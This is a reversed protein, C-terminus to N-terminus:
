WRKCAKAGCSNWLSPRFRTIDPLGAEWPASGGDINRLVGLCRPTAEGLLTRTASSQYFFRYQEAWNETGTEFRFPQCYPSICGREREAPPLKSCSGADGCTQACEPVSTAQIGVLPHNVVHYMVLHGLEHLLVPSFLEHEAGAEHFTHGDESVHYSWYSGHNGRAWHNEDKFLHEHLWITHGDRADDPRQRDFPAVGHETPRNDIVIRRVLQTHQWPVRALTNKLARFWGDHIVGAVHVPVADTNERGSPWAVLVCHSREAGELNRTLRLWRGEYGDVSYYRKRGGPETLAEREGDREPPCLDVTHEAAHEPSTVITPPSAVVSASPAPQPASPTARPRASESGSSSACAAMLCLLAVAGEGSRRTM